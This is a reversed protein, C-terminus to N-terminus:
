TTGLQHSVANQHKTNAEVWKSARRLYYEESFFWRIHELELGITDAFRVSKRHRMGKLARGENM